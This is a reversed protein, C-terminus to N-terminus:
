ADAEKTEKTEKLNGKNKGHAECMHGSNGQPILVGLRMGNKKNIQIFM